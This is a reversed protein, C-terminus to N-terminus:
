VLVCYFLYKLIFPLRLSCSFSDGSFLINPGTHKSMSRNTSQTHVQKTQISPIWSSRDVKAGFKFLLHLMAVNHIQTYVTQVRHVKLTQISPIWSDREVKAGFKFLVHLMAVHTPAGSIDQGPILHLVTIILDLQVVTSCRIFGYQSCQM